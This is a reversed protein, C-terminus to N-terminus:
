LIRELRDDNILLYVEKAKFKNKKLNLILTELDHEFELEFGDFPDVTHFAIVVICKCYDKIAKKNATNEIYPLLAKFNDGPNGVEHGGSGNNVLSRFGSNIKEGDQPNTIEIYEILLGNENYVRADYGRNSLKPEIKYNDPYKAKVFVSLPIIEEVLKKYEGKKLRAATKEKESQEINELLEKVFARLEAPSRKKELINKSIIPKM